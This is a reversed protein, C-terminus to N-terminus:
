AYEYKYEENLVEDFVINKVKRSTNDEHLLIKVRDWGRTRSLAVYLMGHAFVQTRLDVGVYEFTQGQFKNITM